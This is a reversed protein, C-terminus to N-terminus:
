QLKGTMNTANDKVVVSSSVNIKLTVTNEDHSIPGVSLSCMAPNNSGFDILDWKARLNSSAVGGHPTEDKDETQFFTNVARHKSFCQNESNLPEVSAHGALIPRLDQVTSYDTINTGNEILILAMYLKVQTAFFM